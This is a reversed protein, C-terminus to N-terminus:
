AIPRLAPGSVLPGRSHRSWRENEAAWDRVSWRLFDRCIGGKPREPHARSTEFWRGRAHSAHRERAACAVFHRCILVFRCIAGVTLARRQAQYPGTRRPKAWRGVGGRWRSASRRAPSSRARLRHAQPDHRADDGHGSSTSLPLRRRRTTVPAQHTVARRMTAPERCGIVHVVVWLLLHALESTSAVARM